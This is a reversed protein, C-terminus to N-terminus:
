CLMWHSLNLQSLVTRQLKGVFFVKSSFTQTSFPSNVATKQCIEQHSLNHQPFVTTQLKRVLSTTTHQLHAATRVDGQRQQLGDGGVFADLRCRWQNLPEPFHHVLEGSGLPGQEQAKHPSARAQRAGDGVESAPVKHQLYLSFKWTFLLRMYQKQSLLPCFQMLTKSAILKTITRFSVAKLWKECRSNRLNM